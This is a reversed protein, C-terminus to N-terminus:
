QCCYCRVQIQWGTTRLHRFHLSLIMVTRWCMTLDMRFYVRLYTLFCLLYTIRNMILVHPFFYLLTFFFFNTVWYSHMLIANNYTRRRHVQATTHCAEVPLTWRTRIQWEASVSPSRCQTVRHGPCRAWPGHHVEAHLCVGSQVHSVAICVYLSM